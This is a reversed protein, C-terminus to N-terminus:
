PGGRFPVAEEPFPIKEFPYYNTKLATRHTKKEGNKQQADEGAAAKSGAKKQQEEDKIDKDDAHDTNHKGDSNDSNSKGERDEEGANDDKGTDETVDTEGSRTSRQEQQEKTKKLTKKEENLLWQFRSWLLHYLEVASTSPDVYVVIPYGVHRWKSRSHAMRQTRPVRHMVQLYHNGELDEPLEYRGCTRLLFDTLGLCM